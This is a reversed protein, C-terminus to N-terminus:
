NGVEEVVEFSDKDFENNGRSTSRSLVSWGSGDSSLKPFAIDFPDNELIAPGPTRVPHDSAVGLNM